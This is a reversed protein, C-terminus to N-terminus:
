FPKKKVVEPVNNKMEELPDSSMIIDGKTKQSNKFQGIYLTMSDTVKKVLKTGQNRYYVSDLVVNSKPKTDIPIFLNFGSGGSKIPSTWEEVYVEGIPIPPTIQANQSETCKSASLFTIFIATSISLLKM